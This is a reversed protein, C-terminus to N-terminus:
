IMGKTKASNYSRWFEIVTDATDRRNRVKEYELLSTMEAAQATQYEPHGEAQAKREEINGEVRLFIASWINKAKRKDREHKVKLEALKEDTKTLFDTADEARQFWDIM